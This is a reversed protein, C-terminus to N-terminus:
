AKALLELYQGATDIVQTKYPLFKFGFTDESKKSDYNIVHTPQKGDVKLRGDAVAEPFAEKVIDFAEEWKVGSPGDATAVFAQNGKIEPRLAEVHLMAVDNGHVFNGNYSLENKKGLLPAMLVSNTSGTIFQEPKTLLEDRGFIWGPIISILDFDPNERKIYAESENLAFVKSASYAQFEYQYPGAPNPIRSEANFVADDVPGLLYNFPLIAVASSTIVVRKVTGSKKASDLMGITGALAPKVFYDEYKEVPPAEDGFSPIPSAIHVIYKAGKAAEDYAGPATMDPVTIWSLQEESPNLAKLAPAALVKSIKGPSRVASRVKYGAKLLRVLTLYGLYGTAGTLLVLEQAPAM